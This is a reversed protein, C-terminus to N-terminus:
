VFLDGFICAVVALVLVTGCGGSRRYNWFIGILPFPISPGPTASNARGPGSSSVNSIVAHWDRWAADLMLM